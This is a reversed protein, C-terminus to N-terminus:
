TGHLTQKQEFKVSYGGITVPCHKATDTVHDIERVSHFVAFVKLPFQIFHMVANECKVEKAAEHKFSSFDLGHTKKFFQIAKATEAKSETGTIGVCSTFFADPEAGYLSPLSSQM